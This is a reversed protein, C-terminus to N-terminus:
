QDKSKILFESIQILHCGGDEYNRNYEHVSYNIDLVAFNLILASFFRQYRTLGLVMTSYIM